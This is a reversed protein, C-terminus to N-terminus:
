EVIDSSKCQLLACIRDVTKTSVAENYYLSQYTKNNIIGKRTLNHQNCGSAYLLAFTKEYKVTDIVLFLSFRLFRAIYLSLLGYYEINM